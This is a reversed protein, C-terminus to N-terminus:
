VPLFRFAEGDTQVHGAPRNPFHTGIVLAGSAAVEALFRRRTVRAQDPDHDGIEAWSPEACQVPHHMLDGTIVAVEGKSEIWLSTHGPTHGTTPALRLGDGLDADEAVLDALGADFIPAVSDGWVDEGVRQESARWHAVERETYLHRASVFTPVWHGDLPRTDWGVHDAHLHTHVVTRVGDPDFGAGTFADLWGWQQQHWFPLARVKGDGVCPDVLVTRDGVEVVLAQVRLAVTGDAAAFDPVVWEHAAVEAATADPFFLEPPIGPIESEVVSTVTASGVRWRGVLGGRDVV